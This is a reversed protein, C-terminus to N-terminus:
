AILKSIEKDIDLTPTAGSHSAIPAGMACAYALCQEPSEGRLAKSLFMALFSDGSGITDKVEVKFGPHNYHTGRDYYAAGKDGRTVMILDLNAHLHLLWSIQKDESDLDNRDWSTILALEEHNIKLWDTQSLLYEILEKSYFPARLNIDCIKLTAVPLLKNLTDRNIANRCALSGFILIPKDMGITKIEDSKLQIFDWAAPSHITYSAENKENLSVTVQGTPQNNQQIYRRDIHKSKLFDLLEQGLTDKGVATLPYANLGLKNLHYAVNMPAGGPIKGSPLVDWLLEGFCFIKDM